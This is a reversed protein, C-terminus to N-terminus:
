GGQENRPTDKRRVPDRCAVGQTVHRSSCGAQVQRTHGRHSYGFGHDESFLIEVIQVSQHGGRVRVLLYFFTALDHHSGCFAQFVVGNRLTNITTASGDAGPSSSVDLGPHCTERGTSWACATSRDGATTDFCFHEAQDVFWWWVSCAPGNSLHRGADFCALIGNLPDIRGMSQILAFAGASGHRSFNGLQPYAGSQVRCVPAGRVLRVKLGDTIRLRRRQAM